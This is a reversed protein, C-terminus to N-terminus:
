IRRILKLKTKNKQSPDYGSIEAIYYLDGNFRIYVSGDLKTYDEATIYCEVETYHSSADVLISFYKGLITDNKDEYSLEMLGNLSNSVKALKLAAGNFDFQGGIDNLLGDFYFFRYAQSTYRNEMATPYSETLLWADNKSIIPLPLVVSDQTIDKYWNYSFSSTQETVSEETAGTYFHGGGNVGTRVYGEEETDVTFGIKYESPLGLSTNVRDRLSAKEEINLYKSSTGKKTQKVDLSFARSDTQTLKLNFAKVFNDLFDDVKTDASLFGALNISNVDFNVADNWNMAATGRGALDVKLWDEDVRFPTIGLDFKLEHNVLGYTSHMGDKRYRGESSVSAVTLLEGAKLWVVTSVAGQGTYNADAVADDYMGRRAYVSPANLLSMHLKRTSEWGIADESSEVITRNITLTSSVDFYNNALWMTIRPQFGPVDALTTDIHATGNVFQTSSYSYEADGNFLFILGTYNADVPISFVYTYNSELPFRNLIVNNAALGTALIQVSGLAGCVLVMKSGNTSIPITQEIYTVTPSGAVPAKIDVYDLSPWGFGMGNPSYYALVAVANNAEVTASFKVNAYLSLDIFDTTEWGALSTILGDANSLAWNESRGTINSPTPDVPNGHSDLVKNHVWTAATYDININPNDGESDFSGLRGYKMYGPSNVVLRVPTDGNATVDYSNAPKSILVQAYRNETDLPNYYKQANTGRDSNYGFEFGALINSSQAADVMNIQGDATVPPFYKPINYEDYIDNQPQNDYFFSGDLKAGSLGFDANGNDRLLKVEYVNEFMRNNANESLGSIHQIGTNSDTVRWNSNGFVNLSAKFTLKYFGETPIRIQGRTWPFGDADNVTKLLVNGGTDERVEIKSNTADLVDCSYITGTDDSSQNIGRELRATNTIREYTSAWAGSVRITAHHGYNWPQTYDAENRYSMYLQKLKEDSFATGSIVYGKSNFIHQIIILPNVAPPLDSMGIYVSDDWVTRGSYTNADKNLPAKPLLGYLVFPFIAAQPETRAAENYLNIYEAFDVFPIRYEAIANLAIDGFIDKVSKATPVYLNGKYADSVETLRFRGTFVRSGAVICEANYETVFKNRTEEVNAHGFVIDNTETLPLSISYSYQADKTSLEAPNILQRNLRLSFDSSLDVLTGNIYLETNNM